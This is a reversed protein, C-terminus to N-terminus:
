RRAGRVMDEYIISLVKEAFPEPRYSEAFPTRLFRAAADIYCEYETRKMSSIYLYLEELSTFSDPNVFSAEPVYDTVNPAGKYIPICGSLFCDFLKETIYNVYRSNEYCFSFRYGALTERKNEAKGRFFPYKTMKGVGYPQKGFLDIKEPHNNAFWDLIEQRESYLAEKSPFIDSLIHGILVCLKKDDFGKKLPVDFDFCMPRIAIYKYDDILDTRWTFMKDYFLTNSLLINEPTVPPPETLFAYVPKGSQMIFQYREESRDNTSMRPSEWICFADAEHKNHERLPECTIGRSNNALARAGATYPQGMWFNTYDLLAPNKCKIDWQNSFLLKM